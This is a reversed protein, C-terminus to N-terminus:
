HPPRRILLSGKEYCSGQQRTPGPVGTSFIESMNAISVNVSIEQKEPYDWDKRFKIKRTGVDKYIYERINGLNDRVADVHVYVGKLPIRPQNANFTSQFLSRLNPLNIQIYTLHYVRMLIHAHLGTNAYEIAAETVIKGIDTDFSTGPRKDTNVFVIQRLSPIDCFLFRLTRFFCRIADQIAEISRFTQNTNIMIHFNSNKVSTVNKTTEEPPIYPFSVKPSDNM